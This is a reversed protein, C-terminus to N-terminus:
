FLTLHAVISKAVRRRAGADVVFWQLWFETGILAPDSPIGHHQTGYGLGAGNGSLVVPAALSFSGWDSKGGVSGSGPPRLSYGLFAIAGGLGQHVGVRFDLNGVNPPSLAIMQPVFDGSGVAETGYVLEPNPARESALTPRDFPFTEDRVRPDTLGNTLFDVVNPHFQAPMNIDQYNALFPGSTPIGSQDDTFQTHGENSYLPYAPANYYHISDQVDTVWGVHMLQPRLGVNRLTPTKFRGRDDPDGTVNERGLDEISPRLGINYFLNDTFLPPVHCNFCVTHITLFNFGQIQQQTMAGSDGAMWLDWPTQDPLLTREYTAIAFAIHEATISPDGGFAAAFLDPYTTQSTLAAAVDTPLDTALWLPRVVALKATIQGWDRAEHAMEVDGVPPGVAQNELAGFDAISELGTQPDFFQGGARGDWFLEPAWQSGIMPPTSRGTVQALFGFTPDPAYRDAADSRVIGLSGLVDDDTGLLGDMGPHTAMRPDSGAASPIHCTGCAITNDSSLQEDWFLIKGLIRKEETIPNEPPIDLDPLQAWVPQAGSLLLWALM